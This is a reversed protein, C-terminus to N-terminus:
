CSSVRATSTTDLARVRLFPLIMSQCNTLFRISSDSLSYRRLSVPLLGSITGTTKSTYDSAEVLEADVRLLGLPQCGRKIVIPYLYALLASAKRQMRTRYNRYQLTGISHWTTSNQCAYRNNNFYLSGTFQFQYIFHISM